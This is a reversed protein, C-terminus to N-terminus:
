AKDPDAGVKYFDIVLSHRIIEKLYIRIEFIDM